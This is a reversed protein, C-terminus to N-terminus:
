GRVRILAGGPIRSSVMLFSELILLELRARDLGLDWQMCWARSYFLNLIGKHWIQGLASFVCITRRRLAYGHRLLPVHFQEDVFSTVYCWHCVRGFSVHPDDQFVSFRVFGSFVVV